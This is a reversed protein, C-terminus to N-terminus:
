FGSAFSHKWQHPGFAQPLNDNRSIFGSLRLFFSTERKRREFAEPLHTNGSIVGLLRLCIHTEMSSIRFGSAFSCKWQYCVFAQPLHANGSILDLLRLSFASECRRSRKAQLLNINGALFTMKGSAFPHKWNFIRKQRLCFTRALTFRGKAEPKRTKATNTSM